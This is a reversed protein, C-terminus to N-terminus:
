SGVELSQRRLTALTESLGLRWSRPRVVFTRELKSCDLVSNLPRAAPTPYDATAIPIVKPRPGEALDFIAEAFGRWSTAGEGAFHFIGSATPDTESVLRPLASGLIFEALDGAATPRGRQDDVVSLESRTQALRLMTKVFNSGFPSFLWSARLIMARAGSATVAAEGAAKSRGYVNVPSVPDTEVWASPKTGDFVYDTSVHVLPLGREACARAIAGPAEANVAFALGEEIEAQDVATYAAAMVVADAEAELVAEAAAEGDTLDLQRRSLATTEVGFNKARDLLERGLQGSAGIQLLRLSM